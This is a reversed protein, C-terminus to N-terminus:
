LGKSEANLSSVVLYIHTTTTLYYFETSHKLPKTQPLFIENLSWVAIDDNIWATPDATYEYAPPGDPTWNINVNIREFIILPQICTAEASICEVVLVWERNDSNRMKTRKRPREM